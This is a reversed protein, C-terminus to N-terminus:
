LGTGYASVDPCKFSVRSNFLGGEGGQMSWDAAHASAFRFGASNGAACTLRVDIWVASASRSLSFLRMTHWLEGFTLMGEVGRLSNHEFGQGTGGFFKTDKWTNQYRYEVNQAFTQISSATGSPYIYVTVEPWAWVETPM